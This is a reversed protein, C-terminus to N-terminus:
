EVLKIRIGVVGFEVEEERTYIEYMSSKLWPKDSETYGLWEPPVQDFLEAFTPYAHLGLVEVELEEALELLKRLRITDGAKVARRKEDNIRLELTKVGTRVREFSAPDLKMSHINMVIDHCQCHFNAIGSGEM